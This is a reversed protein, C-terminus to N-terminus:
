AGASDMHIKTKGGGTERKGRMEVKARLHKKGNKKEKSFFNSIHKWIKKKKQINSSSFSGYFTWSKFVL